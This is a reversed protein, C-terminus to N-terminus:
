GWLRGMLMIKRVFSDGVPTRRVEAFENIAMSADYTTVVQKAGLYKTFLILLHDGSIMKGSPDFAMM